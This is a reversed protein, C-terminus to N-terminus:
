LDLHIPELEKIEKISHMSPDRASSLQLAGRCVPLHFFFPFHSPVAYSVALFQDASLFLCSSFCPLASFLFSSECLVVFHVFICLLCEERFDVIIEPTSCVGLRKTICFDHGDVAM